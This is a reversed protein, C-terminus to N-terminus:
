FFIEFINWFYGGGAFVYAAKWPLSEERSLTRLFAYGTRNAVSCHLRYEFRRLSESLAQLFHDFFHLFRDDGGLQLSRTGTRDGTNQERDQEDNTHHKEPERNGVTRPIWTRPKGM